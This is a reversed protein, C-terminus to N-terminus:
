NLKWFLFFYFIYIFIWFLFILFSGFISTGFVIIAFAFGRIPRIIERIGILIKNIIKLLIIRLWM